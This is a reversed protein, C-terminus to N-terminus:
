DGKNYDTQTHPIRTFEQLMALFLEHLEAKNVRVTWSPKTWAPVPESFEWYRGDERNAGSAFDIKKFVTM